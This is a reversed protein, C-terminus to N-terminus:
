VRERWEKRMERVIEVSSKKTIGKTMGRMAKIPDKPIPIIMITGDVEVVKIRQGKKIRLKDRIEKPIVVQGKSSIRLDSM